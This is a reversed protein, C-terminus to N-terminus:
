FVLCAIPSDYIPSIPRNKIFIPSGASKILGFRARFSSSSHLLAGLHLADGDCREDARREGNRRDDQVVMLSGGTTAERDVEVGGYAVVLM